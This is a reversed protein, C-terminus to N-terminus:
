KHLFQRAAEILTDIGKAQDSPDLSCPVDPQIGFEIQQYNRDLTPSASFRVSWGIPLESSMPLGGGGGTQDGLTTVLPCCKMNRVFVNAASYCERNTLVVVRKQWRIGEAPNLYEARPSSFADHAAGTKHQMYGVRTRENTFHSALREAYTLLGGGNGRIDLILGDCARLYYLMDSINGEGIGSSFSNYAVYGINDELIRYYLGAGIKYDTGLYKDQLNEDFNRPYDEHWSWYRGVDASYYLNVHGDRLESLMDCLVEFLQARTMHPTLRAAYRDHVENWDLGTEQAKYDFFCYQRDIIQWLAEFNATPTADYELGHQCASFTLLSLLSILFQKM